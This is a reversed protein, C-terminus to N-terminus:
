GFYGLLRCMGGAVVGMCPNSDGQNKAEDEHIEDVGEGRKRRRGCRGPIVYVREGLESGRGRRRGGGRVVLRGEGGREAEDDVRCGVADGKTGRRRLRCKREDNEEGDHDM